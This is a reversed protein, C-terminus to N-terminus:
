GGVVGVSVEEVKAGLGVWVKTAVEGDVGAGEEVEARSLGQLEEGRGGWVEPMDEFM